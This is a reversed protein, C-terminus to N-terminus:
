HLLMVKNYLDQRIRRGVLTRQGFTHEEGGVQHQTSCLITCEGDQVPSISPVHTCTMADSM